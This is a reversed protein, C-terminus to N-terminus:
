SSNVHGVFGVHQFDKRIIDSGPAIETGPTDVSQFLFVIQGDAPGGKRQMRLCRSFASGETWRHNPCGSPGFCTEIRYGQVESAMRNLYREQTAKVEAMGVLSKGAEAAEREVRQRVKKRVFFPVRKIAKEAEPTWQM